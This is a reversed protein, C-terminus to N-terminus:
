CVCPTESKMWEGSTYFGGLGKWAWTDEFPVAQTYPRHLGLHHVQWGEKAETFGPGQHNGGVGRCSNGKETVKSRNSGGPRVQELFEPTGRGETNQIM